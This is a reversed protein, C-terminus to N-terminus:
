LGGLACLRVAHSTTVPANGPKATLIDVRVDAALCLTAALALLLRQM